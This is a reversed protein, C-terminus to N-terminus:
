SWVPPPEWEPCACRACWFAGVFWLAFEEAVEFCIAGVFVFMETRTCLGPSSPGTVWVLVEDASAAAVLAFV